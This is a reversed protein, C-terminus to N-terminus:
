ALMANQAVSHIALRDAIGNLGGNIRKTITEFSGADALENLGKTKWYWGASMAAWQASELEQPYLEFDPVACFKALGDRTKAYNFRGTTQILGRGMYRKGDGPKTNGLDARGEYRTQAPTPGWIERAYRLRGSEHGIQALFAAVRKPTNIDFTDCAAAIHPAWVAARDPLCGYVKALLAANILSM